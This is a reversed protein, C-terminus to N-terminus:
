KWKIIQLSQNNKGVIFCSSGKIKISKMDSVDGLTQFGTNYLPTWKKNGENRLVLGVGADLYGSEIDMGYENGSLLLDIDGDSDFDLANIAKVPFYQAELPMKKVGGNSNSNLYIMMSNLNNISYVKADKIEEPKFVDKMLVRSYPAYRTFRKKLFIMQDLILDRIPLPYLTDNNFYAMVADTSGNKDFDNVTMILPRNQTANFRTNIGLNGVVLDKEGDNDLDALQLKQFFGKMDGVSSLSTSLIGTNNKLFQVHTWDGAMVLDQWGDRDMDHWLVDNIMGLNEFTDIEYRNGYNRILFSKPMLGYHGPVIQGAVFLDQWGNKDFDEIALARSSVMINPFQVLNSRSFNAKGDNIYLRLPYKEMQNPYDNGGSTVILDKDGDKDWDIWQSCLDEFIKDEKWVLSSKADFRGMQNQVFLQGMEDKAGGIFFDELGDGNADSVSICPGQKSFKRYLLPEAKYDIYENEKHFYSLMISATIDEFFTNKEVSTPISNEVANSQDLLVLQNAAVDELWQVKGNPWQVFVKAKVNQGMGFHVFPEHTSLYGKTPYFTVEQFGSDPTYLKVVTGFGADASSSNIKFRLYNGYKNEVANNKFLFAYQNINNVVLDLDGDNDLDGYAAGNSLSPINLGTEAGMKQFRFQGLNKYFYNPINVTPYANVITNIDNKHIKILSDLTYKNIDQDTVDKYYGNTIYIDKKGDNDFDAFLPAWSWDTYATNTAFSLDSYYKNDQNQFLVNKVHQAKLKYKVLKEFQDYGMHVKFQKQRYNNESLMDLVMLDNDGDNDLDAYDSGMSHYSFHSFFSDSKEVFGGKKNNIYLYDPQTYDNAIFIDPYSDKNFDAVVASLGFAYTIIGANRTQDIFKGKINQYYRCSVYQEELNKAVELAGKKNYTLVVKKSEQIKEPHNLLFLDLDGDLDFDRFYAQTSYSSDALGFEKARDTFTNNKNNIYLNHVRLKPNKLAAKCIYIDLWGDANVDIMSVGTNFGEGKDIKASASIDEFEFKGKNLYLKNSSMNGTFFIDQLGDNNIDGIAVGGGNYLYEYNMVNFNENETLYNVFDVKTKAPDQITFLQAFTVECHIYLLILSICKLRRM